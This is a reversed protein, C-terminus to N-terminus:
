ALGGHADSFAAIGGSRAASLDGFDTANGTTAITVYDIVNMANSGDTGGGFVARLSNSTGGNSLVSHLTTLNGFNTTNGTSAITIYEINVAFAGNNGGAFLGRTSSSAGCAFQKTAVLDGFDTANGTTAITIYDIVNQDTSSQRGGMTLGRTSSACGSTARRAVTLDGFDTTNSTTSINIYEIINVDAGVNDSGGSFIGRGFASPLTAASFDAIRMWNGASNCHYSIAAYRIAIVDSGNVNDIKDTGNPNVILNNIDAFGNLDKITVKFNDSAAPLSITISGSSLDVPITTGNDTSQVTYGTTKTSVPAVSALGPAKADIQAQIDSTVNSLYQFETSSVSGNAIKSADIAASANIDANVIVGTAIATLGANDISIDGTVAVDAAVNSGNGVLIHASTLSTSQKANLQTQIASTVGNVYGLETATTTAAVLQGNADSAVARSATIAANESAVGGSDNALIRYATGSALKSRAIAASANVDANVIVGTAIQMNGTNDITMDGSVAVDTAVNSGNGVLIHASTLTSSTKGNLQTQINSSVGDLYQFETSSVSGDAIKSADIAAGAKIDANEINSITNSDADITKNTLTASHAETVVPSATTGNHYNLKGSASLVEMEGQTDISSSSVPIIGLGILFKRIRVM